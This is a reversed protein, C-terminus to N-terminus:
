ASYFKRAAGPSAHWRLLAFTVACVLVFLGYRREPLDTFRGNTERNSFRRVLPLFIKNAPFNGWVVSDIGILPKRKVNRGGRIEPGRILSFSWSGGGVCPNKESFDGSWYVKGVGIESDPPSDGWPVAPILKLTLDLAALGRLSFRFSLHIFGNLTGRFPARM